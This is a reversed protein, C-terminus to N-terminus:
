YVAYSIRILSQLESTHEESRIAYACVTVMLALMLAPRALQLQSLGAARMVVMESDMSLKHYVFLVAVFCAVPLVIGLFSPLLLGVFTQFTSATKGRNVM